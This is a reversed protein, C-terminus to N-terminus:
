EALLTIRAFGNGERVGGQNAVNSLYFRRQAVPTNYEPNVHRNIYDDFSDYYKSKMYKLFHKTSVGGETTTFYYNSQNNTEERDESEYGDRSINNYFDCLPTGDYSVQDTWAYSSGGAGAGNSLWGSGGGGGYWGGGGAGVGEFAEGYWYASGGRGFTAHLPADEFYTAYDYNPDTLSKNVMNYQNIEIRCHNGTNLRNDQPGSLTGGRGRATYYGDGERGTWTTTGLLTGGGGDGGNYYGLENPYYMAGGGGGAVIIRSFLHEPKDWDAAVLAIDTAGGGGGSFQNRDLQVTKGDIVAFTANYNSRVLGTAGGNWGGPMQYVYFTYTKDYEEGNISYSGDANKVIPFTRVTADTKTKILNYSLYESCGQKGVYVYLIDGANLNVVGTVYAGKGGECNKAGRKAEDYPSFKVSEHNYTMDTYSGGQAGWVELKYHGSCPATFTQYSGTQITSGNAQYEWVGKGANGEISALGVNIETTKGGELKVDSASGATTYTINFTNGCTLKFGSGLTTRPLLYAEFTATSTTTNYSTRYLKIKGTASGSQESLTVDDTGVNIQGTTPLEATTECAMLSADFCNTVNVVLHAVKHQLTMQITGTTYTYTGVCALFDSNEFGEAAQDAEVTTTTSSSSMVTNDHRVIAWLKMTKGSWRLPSNNNCEWRGSVGRTYAYYTTGQDPSVYVVTNAKDILSRTVTNSDGFCFDFEIPQGIYDSCQEKDLESCGYIGPVLLIILIKLLHKM